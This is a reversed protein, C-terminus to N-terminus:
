QASGVPLFLGGLGCFQSSFLHADGTLGGSQLTIYEAAVVFQDDEVTAM